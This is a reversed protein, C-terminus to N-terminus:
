QWGPRVPRAGADRSVARFERRYQEPTCGAERQFMAIFASATSYLLRASTESSKRWLLPPTIAENRDAAARRRRALPASLNMATSTWAAIGRRPKGLLAATARTAAKITTM